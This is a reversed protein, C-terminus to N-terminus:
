ATRRSQRHHVAGSCSCYAAKPAIYTSHRQRKGKDSSKIIITYTKLLHFLSGNLCNIVPVTSPETQQILRNIFGNGIVISSFAIVPLAAFNGVWTIRLLTQNRHPLSQILQVERCQTKDILKDRYELGM